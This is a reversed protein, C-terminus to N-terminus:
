TSQISGPSTVSSQSKLNFLQKFSRGAFNYQQSFYVCGIGSVIGISAGVLVDLLFHQGLYIRSYGVLIAAILVPLQVKKDKSLLVLITATAFATTTHGSPFSNNCYFQIGDIFFSHYGSGFFLKPRPSFFLHKVIQVIIGSLLFSNFILFAEKKKKIFFLYIAALCIAFVGNGVFTYSIFFKNLWDVHYSNLLIFSYSKGDILLLISGVILMIAFGLFFVPNKKILLVIKNM